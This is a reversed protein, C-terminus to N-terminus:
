STSVSSSPATTTQSWRHYGVVGFLAVAVALLTLVGVVAGIVVGSVSRAQPPYTTSAM